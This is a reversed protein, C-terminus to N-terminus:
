RKPARSRRYAAAGARVGARVGLAILRAEAVAARVKPELTRVTRELM